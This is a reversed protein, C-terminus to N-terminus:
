LIAVWYRLNYDGGRTIGYDTFKADPLTVTYQLNLIVTEGAPIPTKLIVKIIDPFGQPRTYQLISGQGSIAKVATFGRQNNPALHFKKEFSEAFRKALPTTKSSFSHAWDTLYVEEWNDTSTNQVAIQQQITISREDPQLQANITMANQGIAVYSSVIM